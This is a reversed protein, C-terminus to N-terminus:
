GAGGDQPGARSSRAAPELCVGAVREVPRFGLSEYLGLAHYSPDAAIVFSEAGFREASLRATEVLLRSCIGRRRHDEATDVAQYRGCPGTVVMGCSGVVDRGLEGALAVYWAGRGQAFLARHEGQRRRTFALHAEADPRDRDAAWQLGVVQEWLDEEVGPRPDLARVEVDRNERAHPRIHGVRAILGVTQELEYGRAVFEERALGLEGDVRDWAFTRHRVLPEGAFEEDFAREWREADGERPPEDFLLLNGWWHGPNAPSRIATWSARRALERGAPLVDIDTAWVLSRPLVAGEASSQM